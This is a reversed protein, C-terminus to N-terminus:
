MIGLANLVLRLLSFRMERRYAHAIVLVIFCILAHLSAAATCSFMARKHTMRASFSYVKLDRVECFRILDQQKKKDLFFSIVAHNELSFSGEKSSACGM